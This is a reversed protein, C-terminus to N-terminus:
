NKKIHEGNYEKSLRVGDDIDWVVLHYTPNALPYGFYHTGHLIYAIYKPM